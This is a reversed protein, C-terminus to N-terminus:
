RFYGPVLIDFASDGSPNDYEIHLQLKAAILSRERIMQRELELGEERRLPNDQLIEAKKWLTRATLGDIEGASRIDAVDYAKDLWYLAKDAHGMAHEVCALKYNTAVVLPSFIEIKRSLDRCMDYHRKAQHLDKRALELNGQAYCLDALHVHNQGTKKKFCADAKYYLESARSYEGKLYWVRGRQLYTLGLMQTERDGYTERIRAAEVFLSDAEELYGEASEVNGCNALISAVLPDDPALRTVRIERAEEFAARASKLQNLEFRASGETNLIKAHLLSQRDSEEIASRAIYM